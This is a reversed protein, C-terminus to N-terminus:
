SLHSDIEERVVDLFLTKFVGVIKPLLDGHFKIKLGSKPIKVSSSLVNIKPVINGNSAKQEEIAINLDINLNKVEIDVSSKFHLPGARLDVQEM